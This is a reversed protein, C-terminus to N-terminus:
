HHGEIVMMSDSNPGTCSYVRDVVFGSPISKLSTGGLSSLSSVVQTTVSIGHVSVQTIVAGLGPTAAYFDITWSVQLGNLDQYYVVRAAGPSTGQVFITVGTTGAEALATSIQSNSLTERVVGGSDVSAASCAIDTAFALAYPEGTAPVDIARVTAKYVGPPGDPITISVPASGQKSHATGNPDVVTVSMLSGPYCFDLTLKGGPSNYDTEASQGSSLNDGTTVQTTGANNRNSASSECQQALPFADQPDFQNSRLNTLDGNADGDIEQGANLTVQSKGSVAVRGSFAWIRNTGDSRVLVEFQTGRVEASVSHGNVTFTAGSALHQVDTFTRGVKQQLAIAQVNGNRQLQVKSIQMTTNPAMRVYSGDPFEIAGHGGAGTAVTDDANLSQGPVGPHQDVDVPQNIVILTAPATVAASAQAVLFWWGGGVALVMAIVFALLCGGCGFGCGRCGSRQQTPPAPQAPQATPPAPPPAVAM